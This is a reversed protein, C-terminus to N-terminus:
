NKKQTRDTQTIPTGKRNGALTAVNTYYALQAKTIPKPTYGVAPSTTVDYDHLYIQDALYLQEQISQHVKAWDPSNMFEQLTYYTNGNFDADTVSFFYQPVGNDDYGTFQIGLQLPPETYPLDMIYGLGPALDIKLEVGDKWVSIQPVTTPTEPHQIQTTVYEPVDKTYTGALTAGINVGTVAARQMVSTGNLWM